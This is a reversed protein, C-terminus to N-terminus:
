KCRRVNLIVLLSEVSDKFIYGVMVGAPNILEVMGEMESSEVRWENM